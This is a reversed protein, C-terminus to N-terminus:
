PPPIHTSHTPIHTTAMFSALQGEKDTHEKSVPDRVLHQDHSTTLFVGRDEPRQVGCVKANSSPNEDTCCM